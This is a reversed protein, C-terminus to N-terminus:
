MIDSDRGSTTQLKDVLEKELDDQGQHNRLKAIAESNLKSYTAKTHQETSEKRAPVIRFAMQESRRAQRITRIEERAEKGRLYTKKPTKGGGAPRANKRILEAKGRGTDKKDHVKEEAAYKLWGREVSNSWFKWYGNVDTALAM